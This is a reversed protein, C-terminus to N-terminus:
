RAHIAVSNDAYIRKLTGDSLALGNLPWHYHFKGNEYFHEDATELIRFSIPYLGNSFHMDTGYVLRDAYREMFAHVYRPIPAIEGYRAAFDAFLNPYSDFLRGLQSLDSCCNALHCAIFTTRPNSKVADELTAILQDHDAIGARALDVKWKAANMLGDNAADPKLYMWADEAVHINIPMHLEACKALLPRMRVDNIHMGVSRDTLASLATGKARFGMGKDMLEGLGKAGLRHCRELEAIAREAWGPQDYGTYDFECWLEFRDPHRGYKAVMADFREGTASALIITKAINAEDMVAVWRDVEEATKAYDHAHFDVVPYKARRVMTQPIRYISVPRYDKLKLEGADVVSQDPSAAESAGLVATLLALCATRVPHM